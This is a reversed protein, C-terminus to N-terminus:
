NGYQKALYINRSYIILGSLHGVFLVPDRRFIAYILILLSGALSLLWFGLPLLSEKKSESYLWQYVFRLTFLIQSVIGLIMLLLPINENQFLNVRDLTNNNFGYILILVPFVYIFVRLIKPYKQWEKELQINRVYIYYTIVQGLMIAFDDRLYGYVFLLCSALLSIEWFLNPTLVKKHKESIIWQLFIRSSFLGQALFGLGYVFWHSM